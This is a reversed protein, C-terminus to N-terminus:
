TCLSSRTLSFGSHFAPELFSAWGGSLLCSHLPPLLLSSSLSVPLPFPSPPSSLFPSLPPLSSQLFSLYFTSSPLSPNLPFPLSPFLSPLLLSSLVSPPLRHAAHLGLDRSYAWPQQWWLLQIPLNTCAVVRLGLELTRLCGAQGRFDMGQPVWQSPYGVKHLCCRGIVQLLENTREPDHGAVIRAPKASLPEGSVLAVVDIAKQLFSM